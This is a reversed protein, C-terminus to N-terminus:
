RKIFFKEIHEKGGVKLRVLYLGDAENLAIAKKTNWKDGSEQYILRGTMDYIGLKYEANIDGQYDLTIDYAAPNPYVSLKSVSQDDLPNQANSSRTNNISEGVYESPPDDTLGYTGTSINIRSVFSGSTGMGNYWGMSLFKSWNAGLYAFNGDVNLMNPTRLTTFGEIGLNWEIGGGLNYLTVGEPGSYGLSGGLSPNYVLVGNPVPHVENYHPNKICQPINFLPSISNNNLRYVFLRFDGVVVYFRKNFEDFEFDTKSSPIGVLNATIPNTNLGGIFAGIEDNSLYFINTGQANIDIAHFNGVRNFVDALTIPDIRKIRDNLLVYLNEGGESVKISEYEDSLENNPYPISRDAILIGDQDIKLIAINHGPNSVPVGDVNMSNQYMTLVFAQGNKDVALRTNPRYGSLLSHNLSTSWLLEGDECYKILDMSSISYPSGVKNNARLVYVNGFGDFEIGLNTPAIYTQGEYIRPWPDAECCDIATISIDLTANCNDEEIPVGLTQLFVRRIQLNINEVVDSLQAAAGDISNVSYASTITNDTLQFENSSDTIDWIQYEMNTVTCLDTGINLTTGCLVEPATPIGASNNIFEDEIVEIQDIKIYYTNGGSVLPEQPRLCEFFLMDYDETGTTFCTVKQSWSVNVNENEYISTADNRFEAGGNTGLYVDFDYDYSLSALGLPPATILSHNGLLVDIGEAAAIGSSPAVADAVSFTLLYDTNPDMTFSAGVGETDFTSSTLNGAIMLSGLDNGPHGTFDWNSSTNADTEAHDITGYLPRWGPVCEIGSNYLVTVDDGCSGPGYEEMNPNCIFNCPSTNTCGFIQANLNPLCFLVICFISFVSKKM